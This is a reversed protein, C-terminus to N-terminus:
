LEKKTHIIKLRKGRGIERAIVKILKEFNHPSTLDKRFCVDEPEINESQRLYVKGNLLVEHIEFTDWELLGQKIIITRLELSISQTM